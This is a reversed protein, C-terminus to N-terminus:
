RDDYAIWAEETAMAEDRIIEEGIWRRQFRM